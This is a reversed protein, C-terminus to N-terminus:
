ANLFTLSSTGSLIGRVENEISIAFFIEGPVSDANAPDPNAFTGTVGVGIDANFSRRCAKAMENATDQSYVGHTSIVEAPVGCKIKAENSYTICAGKFIESAGETDTILAAIVGGTCSEMTTISIGKEILLKTLSEYKERCSKFTM